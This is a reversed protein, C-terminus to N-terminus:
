YNSCSVYWCKRGVQFLWWGLLLLLVTVPLFYPVILVTQLPDIPPVAKGCSDISPEDLQLNDMVYQEIGRPLMLFVWLFALLALEIINVFKEKYPRAYAYLFYAVGLIFVEYRQFLPFVLLWLLAHM